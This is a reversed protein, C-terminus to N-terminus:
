GALWGGDVVLTAGTIYDAEESALFVAAAGIDEPQGMRKKPIRALFGEKVKPDALFPDVMPTEILGPCIANVNIGLSALEVAWSETLGIVGGKSAVYHSINASGFGQGGSAVSAINIIRGWKQKAMEKVAAQACLYYGKLNIDILRDWEEETLETLPKIPWCIGANNVLIDLRGFEEITKRVMEEIEEKKTVDCKVALGDSGNKKIEEVVKQCEELNIDSVVVKAGAQAMMLAIGRGIGRRSGTIIAVRNTLDFIKKNMINSKM